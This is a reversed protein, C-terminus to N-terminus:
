GDGELAAHETERGRAAILVVRLDSVGADGRLHLVVRHDDACQVPENVIVAAFSRGDRVANQLTTSAQGESPQVSAAAGWAILQNIMPERSVPNDDGGLVRQGRLEAREGAEAPLAHAPELDVTFWFQSGQGAESAVGITGGLLSALNRCISLGLGTGGYR